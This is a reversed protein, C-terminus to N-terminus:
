GGVSYRCRSEGVGELSEECGESRREVESCRSGGERRDMASPPPPDRFVTRQKDKTASTSCALLTRDATNCVEGVSTTQFLSNQEGSPHRHDCQRSRRGSTSSSRSERAATQDFLGTEIDAPKQSSPGQMKLLKSIVARPFTPQDEGPNNWPDVASGGINSPISNASVLDESNSSISKSSRKVRRQTREFQELADRGLLQIGSQTQTHIRTRGDDSHQPLLPIDAM